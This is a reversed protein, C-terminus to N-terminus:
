FNRAFVNPLMCTHFVHRMKFFRSITRLEVFYRSTDPHTVDTVLDMGTLGIHLAVFCSLEGSVGSSLGIGRCM